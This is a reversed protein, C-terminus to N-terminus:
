DSKLKLSVLVLELLLDEFDIVLIAFKEPFGPEVSVLDVV